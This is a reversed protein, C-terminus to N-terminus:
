QFSEDLKITYFLPWCVRAGLGFRATATKIHSGLWSQKKFPQFFFGVFWLTHSTFIVLFEFKQTGWKLKVPVCNQMTKSWKWVVTLTSCSPYLDRSRFLRFYKSSLGKCFPSPWEQHLPDIEVKERVVNNIVLTRKPLQKGGGGFQHRRPMPETLNSIPQVPVFVTVRGHKWRLM